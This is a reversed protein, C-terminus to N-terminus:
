PYIGIMTYSFLFTPVSWNGPLFVTFGGVFAMTFTGAFAYYSIMFNIDSQLSVLHSGSVCFLTALFEQSAVFGSLNGAEEPGLHPAYALSNLIIISLTVSRM